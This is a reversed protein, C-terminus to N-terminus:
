RLKLLMVSLRSEASPHPDPETHGLIEEEALESCFFSLYSNFDSTSKKHKQNERLKIMQAAFLDAFAEEQHSPSCSSKGFAFYDMSIMPANKLIDPLVNGFIEGQIRLAPHALKMEEIISALCIPDHGRNTKVTEEVFHDLPYNKDYPLIVPRSKHLAIDKIFLHTPGLVHGLEHALLFFLTNPQSQSLEMLGAVQINGLYNTSINFDSHVEEFNLILQSRELRQLLEQHWQEVVALIQVNNTSSRKMQLILNLYNKALNKIEAFLILAAKQNEPSYTKRFFESSATKSRTKSAKKIKRIEEIPAKLANGGCALTVDKDTAAEALVACFIVSFLVRNFM